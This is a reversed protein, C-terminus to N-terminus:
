RVTPTILFLILSFVAAALLMMCAMKLVQVRHKGQKWSLGISIGFLVMLWSFFEGRDPLGLGELLANLLALGVALSVIVGLYFVFSRAM